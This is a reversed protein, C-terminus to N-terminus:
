AYTTKMGNLVCAKFSIEGERNQMLMQQTFQESGSHCLSQVGVAPTGQNNQQLEQPSIINQMLEQPAMQESVPRGPSQEAFAQAPAFSGVSM